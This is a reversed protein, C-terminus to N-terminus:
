KRKEVSGKEGVPIGAGGIYGSARQCPGLKKQGPTDMDAKKYNQFSSAHQQKVFGHRKRGINTKETQGNQAKGRGRKGQNKKQIQKLRIM